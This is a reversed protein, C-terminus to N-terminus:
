GMWNVKRRFPPSKWGPSGTHLCQLWEDSAYQFHQRNLPCLSYNSSTNLTVRLQSGLSRIHGPNERCWHLGWSEFMHMWECVTRQVYDLYVQLYWVTCLLMTMWLAYLSACKSESQAWALQHNQTVKMMRTMINLDLDPGTCVLQVWIM